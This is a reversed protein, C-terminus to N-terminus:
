AQDVLDPRLVIAGELFVHRLEERARETYLHALVRICRPLAGDVDLERCNMLPVDALQPMVRRAGTAPFLSRVDDTANFVISILDETRAANRDLMEGLLAGVRETIHQPTDEDITTAGRLARVVAPM